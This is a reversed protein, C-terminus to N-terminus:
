KNTLRNRYFDPQRRNLDKFTWLPHNPFSKSVFFGAKEGKSNTFWVSYPDNGHRSTVLFADQHIPPDYITGDAIAQSFILKVEAKERRDIGRLYWQGAQFLIFLLVVAGVTAWVALALFDGPKRSTTPSESPNMENGFRGWDPIAAQKRFPEQGRLPVLLLCASLGSPVAIQQVPETPM